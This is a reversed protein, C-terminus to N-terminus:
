RLFVAWPKVLTGRLTVPRPDAPAAIATRRFCGKDVRHRLYASAPTGAKDGVAVEYRALDITDECPELDGLVLAWKSGTVRIGAPLPEWDQGDVSMETAETSANGPDSTTPLMAVAVDNGAAEAFPQVQRIPHCVSGGYGWLTFGAARLDAIKWEVIAGWAAGAHPGGKM